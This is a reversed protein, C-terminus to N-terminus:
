DAAMRTRSGALRSVNHGDAPRASVDLMNVHPLPTLDRTRMRQRSAVLTRVSGARVRAGGGCHELARVADNIEILRDADTSLSAHCSAWVIRDKDVRFIVRGLFTVEARM